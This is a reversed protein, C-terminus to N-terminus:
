VPLLESLRDAVIQPKEDYLYCSATQHEDIRFLPPEIKCREMAVPCRAYFRCGESRVNAERAKIPHAGWRQDLNPWPISDILL